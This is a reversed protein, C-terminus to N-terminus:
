SVPAPEPAHDQMQDYVQGKGGDIVTTPGTPEGTLIADFHSITEGTVPNTENVFQWALDLMQRKGVMHQDTLRWRDILEKRVDIRLEAAGLYDLASLSNDGTLHWVLDNLGAIVLEMQQRNYLLEEFEADTTNGQIKDAIQNGLISKKDEALIIFHKTARALRAYRDVKKPRKAAIVIVGAALLIILFLISGIILM